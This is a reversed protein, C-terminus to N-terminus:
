QIHPVFAVPFRTCIVSISPLHSIKCSKPFRVFQLITNLYRQVLTVKRPIPALTVISMVSQMTIFSSSRSGTNYVMMNVVNVGEEALDAQSQGNIIRVEVLDGAILM